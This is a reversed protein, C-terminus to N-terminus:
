RPAYSGQKRLWVCRQGDRTEIGHDDVLADLLQVSLDQGPEWISVASSSDISMLLPLGVFTATINVTAESREFTLRVDNSGDLPGLSVCLEDVALRLDELDDVDFGARVAITAATFRALVVFDVSAPFSLEVHETKVNRMSKDDSTIM